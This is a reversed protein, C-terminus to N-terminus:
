NLSIKEFKEISKKNIVLVIKDSMIIINDVGIQKLENQKILTNDKVQITFRSGKMSKSIINDSGGMLQVFNDQLKNEDGSKKKKKAIVSLYYIGLLIIILCIFGLAIYPAWFKLGDNLDQSALIIFSM